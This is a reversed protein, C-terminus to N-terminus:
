NLGTLETRENYIDRIIASYYALMMFVASFIMSTYVVANIAAASKGAIGFLSTELSVLFFLCTLLLTYPWICSVTEIFRSSHGRGKWFLRNPIRFALLCVPIYFLIFVVGGGVLTLLIFLLILIPPGYSRNLTIVSWIIISISVVISSIGTVLYTSLLSFAEQGNMWRQQEPGVSQIIFSNIARGDQLTEFIGHHIGSVALLICM